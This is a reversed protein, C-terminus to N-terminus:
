TKSNWEIKKEESFKMNKETKKLDEKVFFFRSSEGRRQKGDIAKESGHQEGDVKKTSTKIREEIKRNQQEKSIRITIDIFRLLKFM